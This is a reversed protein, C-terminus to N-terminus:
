ISIHNGTTRKFHECTEFVGKEEGTLLCRLFETRSPMTVWECNECIRLNKSMLENREIGM